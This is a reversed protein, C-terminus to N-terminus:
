ARASVPPRSWRGNEDLQQEFVTENPYVEDRMFGLLLQCLESVRPTIEFGTTESGM